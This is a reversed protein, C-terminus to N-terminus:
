KKWIKKLFRIFSSFYNPTSSIIVQREPFFLNNRPNFNQFLTKSTVLVVYYESEPHYIYEKYSYEGDLLKRMGTSGDAFAFDEFLLHYMPTNYIWIRDLRKGFAM